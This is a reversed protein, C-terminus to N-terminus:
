FGKIFSILVFDETSRDFLKPQAAGKPVPGELFHINVNKLLMLSAVTDGMRDWTFTTPFTHENCNVNFFSAKKKVKM